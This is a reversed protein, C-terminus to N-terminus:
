QKSLMTEFGPLIGHEQHLSGDSGLELVKHIKGNTLWIFRAALKSNYRLAQLVTRESISETAAKCEVLLLVHGERDHGLVDTRGGRRGRLGREISILKDPFKTQTLLWHVVHQRVWEEPTLLLWTKRLSDHVEVLDGKRRLNLQPPLLDLIPYIGSDLTQIETQPISGQAM